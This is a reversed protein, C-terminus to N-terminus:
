DVIARELDFYQAPANFLLNGKGNYKNSRDKYFLNGYDTMGVFDAYMPYHIGVLKFGYKAIEDVNVDVKGGAAVLDPYM